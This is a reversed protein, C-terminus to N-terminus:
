AAETTGFREGWTRREHTLESATLERLERITAISDEQNWGLHRFFAYAIMGTRHLGASCHIFVRGGRALEAQIRELVHHVEKDRKAGPPTASALPLRIRSEDEKATSEHEGLLSVILTCDQQQLQERLKRGPRHGLALFGGAIEVWHLQYSGM